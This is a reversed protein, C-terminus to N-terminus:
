PLPRLRLFLYLPLGVAPGLLLTAPVALLGLPDHRAMAEGIVFVVTAAGLLAVSDAMALSASSARIEALFAYPNAGHVALWEGMRRVPFILGLAILLLYFLRAPTM